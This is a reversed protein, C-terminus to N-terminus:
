ITKKITLSKQYDLDIIKLNYKNNLEVAINLSITSKGTGGKQHAITIIKGKM